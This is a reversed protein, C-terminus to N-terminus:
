SIMVLAKGEIPNKTTFNFDFSEGIPVGRWLVPYTNGDALLNIKQRYGGFLGNQFLSIEYASSKDASTAMVMIKVQGKTVPFARRSTLSHQLKFPMEFKGSMGGRREEKYADLRLAQEIVLLSYRDLQYTKKLYQECILDRDAKNKVTGM